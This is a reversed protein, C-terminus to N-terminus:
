SADKKTSKKAPREDCDLTDDKTTFLTPKGFLKIRRALATDKGLRNRPEEQVTYEQVWDYNNDPSEEEM